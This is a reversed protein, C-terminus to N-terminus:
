NGKNKEFIDWQIRLPAERYLDLQTEEGLFLKAHQWKDCFCLNNYNSGFLIMLQVGGVWLFVLHSKFHKLHFIVHWKIDGANDWFFLAREKLIAWIIEKLFDLQVLMLRNYNELQDTFCECEKIRMGKNALQCFTLRREEQSSYLSYSCATLWEWCTDAHALQENKFQWTTTFPQNM